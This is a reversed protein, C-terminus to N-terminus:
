HRIWEPHDAWALLERDGASDGYAWLEVQDRRVGREAMWSRLRDVKAQGRCNGGVLAGTCRTVGDVDRTDLETAIVAEVGWKEALPVLYERYSASVVVVHDGDALHQHLRAVTSDRLHEELSTSAYREATGVVTEYDVNRFVADSIVARLRDRDRRAVSTILPVILTLGRGIAAPSLMRWLFPVVSDRRTLTGDFDFAAIRRSAVSEAAGAEDNTTM